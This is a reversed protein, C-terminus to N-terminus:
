RAVGLPLSAITKSKTEMERNEGHGGTLDTRFVGFMSRRVDFASNCFTRTTM